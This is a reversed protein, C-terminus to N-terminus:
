LSGHVEGRGGSFFLGPLWGGEGEETDRVTDKVSCAYLTLSHPDLPSQDHACEVLSLLQWKISQTYKRLSPTCVHCYSINTNPYKSSERKQKLLFICEVFVHSIFSLLFLLCAYLASGWAVGTTQFLTLAILLPSPPQIGRSWLGPNSCLSVM